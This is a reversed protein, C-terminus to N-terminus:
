VLNIELGNQYNYLDPNILQFIKLERDEYPENQIKIRKEELINNNLYTEILYNHTRVTNHTFLYNFEAKTYIDKELKYIFFDTTPLFRRRKWVSVDNQEDMEISKDPVFLFNNVIIEKYINVNKITDKKLIIGEKYVEDNIENLNEISYKEEKLLSITKSLADSCIWSKKDPSLDGYPPPYIGNNKSTILISVKRIENNKDFRGCRGLRQIINGIPAVDTLLYDSSINLSMEGVQTLVAIKYKNETPFEGFNALIEKQKNDKDHALFDSNFLLIENSNFHNGLWKKIKQSTKVTNTFWLTKESKKINDIIENSFMPNEVDYNSINFDYRKRKMGTDDVLIDSVRYNPHIDTFFDRYSRPITASMLLTKIDLIQSCRLLEKINALVLDDYFDAEDIIMCCNALNFNAIHSEESQQAIANLVHDVTTITIPYQFTRRQFLDFYFHQSFLEKEKEDMQLVVDNKKFKNASSYSKAVDVGVSENISKEMGFVTFITPLVIILRDANGANIHQNAWLLGAATKGGGTKASILLLDYDLANDKAIKQIKRLDWNKPFDYSFNGLELEKEYNKGNSEFYSGKRDCLQLITRQANLKYTDLIIKEFNHTQITKHNQQLLKSYIKTDSIRDVNEVIKFKERIKDGHKLKGHHAVIAILQEFSLDDFHYLCSQIEHRFNATLLNKLSKKQLFLKNDERCPQQWRPHKKGEDHLFITKILENTLDIDKFYKQYKHIIFPNASLYNILEHMVNSTHQALSIGTPKGLIM